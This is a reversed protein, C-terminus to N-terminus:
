RVRNAWAWNVKFGGVVNGYFYSWTYSDVHPGIRDFVAKCEDRRGSLAYALALWNECTLAKAHTPPGPSRWKTVCADLERQVDPRRFYNQCDVLGRASVKGWSYERMAYELHALLPLMTVGTGAPAESATERAAAFMADHSGFWKECLFTVATSNVEFSYRERRRAEALIERFAGRRGADGFMAILLINCPVPDDPALALAREAEAWTQTSLEGFSRFQEQSTRAAPATGRAKGAREGLAAAHVTVAIPDDPTASLWADLWEGANGPAAEALAWIRHGRREWDTGAAAVGDRAAAWDGAVARDRMSRLERDDLARDRDLVPMVPAPGRRFLRGFM